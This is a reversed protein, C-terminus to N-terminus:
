PRTDLLPSPPLPLRRFAANDATIRSLRGRNLAFPRTIRSLRGLMRNGGHRTPRNIRIFRPNVDRRATHATTYPTASGPHHQQEDAWEKTPICEGHRKWRLSLNATEPPRLGAGLVAGPCIRTVPTSPPCALVLSQGLHLTAMLLSPPHLWMCQLCAHAGGGRRRCEAGM